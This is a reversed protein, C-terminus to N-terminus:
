ENVISALAESILEVVPIAVSNGFQRYASARTEPLVFSEPFGQLRACERPTLMRPNRGRQPILCEKGDKGYRAVLTNSPKNLDAVEATFGTGREINAKTRSLHGAWLRDSITYKADPSDELISWLPLPSGAIVPFKFESRSERICVMYCRQRRQPVLSSSDIIESNFSYGLDDTIVNKIREFTRGRDHSRLNRVNELFLVKPRKVKAIRIIDFFLTGEVSSAFGTAQGLANRASVGARSFPQCPFGAALIDHDPVTREIYEDPIQGGTFQRIDGYPMEGYNNFYTFKAAEDLESSLVCVGNQQQLAQRFGGIGAFLDIFAFQKRSPRPFPVDRKTIAALMEWHNQSTTIEPSSDELISKLKSDLLSNLKSGCYPPSTAPNGM